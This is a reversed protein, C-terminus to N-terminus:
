AGGSIDNQQMAQRVNEENQSSVSSLYKKYIDSGKPIKSRITESDLAAPNTLLAQIIINKDSESIDKSNNIDLALAKNSDNIRNMIKIGDVGYLSIYADEVATKATEKEIKSQLNTLQEQYQLQTLPTGDQNKGYQLAQLSSQLEANLKNQKEALDISRNYAIDSLEKDTYLQGTLPNTGRTQSNQFTFLDKAAQQNIAQMQKEIDADSYVQGTTPNIGNKLRQTYDALKTQNELTLGTMEKQFSQSSQQMQEQFKQQAIRENTNYAQELATQGLQSGITKAINAETASEDSLFNQVNKNGVGGYFVGRSALNELTTNLREGFGKRIPDVVSEFAQQAVKQYSEPLGSFQSSVEKAQAQSALDNIPQQAQYQLTNQPSVSTM